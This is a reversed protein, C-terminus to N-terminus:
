KNHPYPERVDTLGLLYDISTKYFEALIELSAASIDLVGSEYRSYTAQSVHLIKALEEQNLDNDERLDRLRPEM